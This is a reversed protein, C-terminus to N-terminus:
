GERASVTMYGRGLAALAQLVADTLSDRSETYYLPSSREHLLASTLALGPAGVPGRNDIREALELLLDRNGQIESRRMLSPPMRLPDFPRDALEVAGRLATALRARTKASGLQGVRLSLEDSEIPDGGEALQRDLDHVHRRTRWRLWLGGLVIGHSWRAIRRSRVRRRPFRPARM